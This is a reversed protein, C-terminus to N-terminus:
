EGVYYKIFQTPIAWSLNNIQEQLKEDV